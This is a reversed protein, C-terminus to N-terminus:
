GELVVSFKSKFLSCQKFFLLSRKLSTMLNGMENILLAQVMIKQEFRLHFVLIILIFQAFWITHLKNFLQLDGHLGDLEYNVLLWTQLDIIEMEFM